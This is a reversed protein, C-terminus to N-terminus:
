KESKSRSTPSAESETDWKTDMWDYRKCKPCARPLKDTRKSWSHGCIKCKLEQGINGYETNVHETNTINM